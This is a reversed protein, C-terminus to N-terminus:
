GRKKLLASRAAEIELRFGAELADLASAPAGVHGALRAAAALVALVYFTNATIGATKLLGSVLAEVAVGLRFTTKLHTRESM